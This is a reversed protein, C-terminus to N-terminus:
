AVRSDANCGEVLVLGLRNALVAQANQKAKGPSNRKAIARYPGSVYSVPTRLCPQCKGALWGQRTVVMGQFVLS